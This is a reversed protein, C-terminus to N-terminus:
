PRCQPAVFWRAFEPDLDVLVLVADQRNPDDALGDLTSPAPVPEGKEQLAAVHGALAEVANAKAEELTRGATVCGPMDPLEVGYDSRKEKRMYAVYSQM